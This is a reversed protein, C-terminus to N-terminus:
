NPQTLFDNLWAPIHVITDSEFIPPMEIGLAAYLQPPVGIDAVYLDGVYARADPMLLGTKPLALTMTATARICPNGPQGTTTDLGSPTDLALVKCGSRNLQQIWEAIEGRPDGRLGYGIMADIVLDCHEFDIQEQEHVGMRSLIRAQLNPVSNAAPPHPTYKLRIEAGRNSLHRAAVMGGGGNNGAGCLVGICVGELSGALLRRSLEALNRGANEMMQILQIGYEEVMLRDVEIMQETTVTPIQPDM